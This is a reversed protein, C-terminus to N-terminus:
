MFNHFSINLKVKQYIKEIRCIQCVSGVYLTTEFGITIKNTHFLLFVDAEFQYCVSPQVEPSLLVM